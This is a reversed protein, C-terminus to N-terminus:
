DDGRGHFVQNYECTQERWNAQMAMAVPADQKPLIM